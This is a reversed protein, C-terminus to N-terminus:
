AGSTITEYENELEIFNSKRSIGLALKSKHVENDMVIKAEQM